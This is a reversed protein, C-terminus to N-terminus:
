WVSVIREFLLALALGLALFALLVGSVVGLVFAVGFIRMVARWLNPDGLQGDFDAAQV